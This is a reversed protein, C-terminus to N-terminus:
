VRTTTNVTVAVSQRVFHKFNGAQVDVKYNAPVLNVFSYEGAANTDATRSESTGLNTITVTAGAVVAGSNDTVSGVVSGYFTQANVRVSTTILCFFSIALAALVRRHSAKALLCTM